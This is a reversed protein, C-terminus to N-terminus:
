VSDVKQQDLHSEVEEKLNTEDPSQKSAIKANLSAKFLPSSSDPKVENEQNKQDVNNSPDERVDYTHLPLTKLWEFMPMEKKETEVIVPYIFQQKFENIADNNEDWKIAEHIGDGGYKLNYRDYHVEELLLGLGPAMPIDLRLTQFAKIITEKNTLGRMVAIALGIMKRIQHLMFSQGKVRVVIFEIGDKIFPQSCNMEMIYRSASPDTPKKHATFNHYNHTGIYISLIENFENITQDKIRFAETTLEDFPCLAYSPMLYSYTRGDCFNKADFFKTVRKASIVRIQPPLLDNVKPILESFELPLLISVIQKIASVGKDTRAAGSVYSL